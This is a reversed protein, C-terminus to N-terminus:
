LNYLSFIQSTVNEVFRNMHLKKKLKKQDLNIFTSDIYCNEIKFFIDVIADLTPAVVIGARNSKVWKAVSTENSCIALIKAGSYIYSSLKSPFSYHTVRDEIPALAWEYKSSICGAQESSVLGYYNVLSNDKSLEFIQDSFVGGGAFSFELCGGRQKYKKIANILLPVRQLRGLNGTFSFGKKKELCSNTVFSISPNEVIIIEKQTNSRKMLVIKMEENLTILISAQRITFNDMKKLFNFIFENMKVIVNTAEPHIDQIHYIYKLSMIKSFIAVIFPVLIPPDTLVYINKPRTRLLCFFVWFMFFISDLIRVVLNSSSNSLAHISFFNVGIGRKHEELNKNIHGHDQLIVAVKKLPVLSEAVRLLGEGVVPYVPWFSRNIIVLDYRSV